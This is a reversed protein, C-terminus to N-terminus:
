HVRGLAQRLQWAVTSPDAGRTVAAGVVVRRAGAALVVAVTSPAIGGAASWPHPSRKAAIRVLQLRDRSGASSPRVPVTVHDVDEDASAALDAAGRTSRSLLRDPGLRRRVPGLDATRRALHVGDADVAVAVEPDDDILLLTGTRDCVERALEAAPRLLQPRERDVRLRFADVSAAALEELFAVLAPGGDRVGTVVTLRTDALRGQRQAGRASLSPFTGPGPAPVDSTSPTM